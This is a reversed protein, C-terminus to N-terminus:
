KGPVRHEITEKLDQIAKLFSLQIEAARKLIESQADRVERNELQEQRLQYAQYVVLIILISSLAGFSDVLFKGFEHLEGLTFPM